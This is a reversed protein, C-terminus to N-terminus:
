QVVEEWSVRKCNTSEISHQTITVIQAPVDSVDYAQRGYIVVEGADYTEPVLIVQYAQEQIQSASLQAVKFGLFRFNLIGQQDWSTIDISGINDTTGSFQYDGSWVEVGPLGLCLHPQV